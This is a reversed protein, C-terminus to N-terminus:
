AWGLYKMIIIETADKLPTDLGDLTLASRRNILVVLKRTLKNDVILPDFDPYKSQIVECITRLSDGHIEESEVKTIKKYPSVYHITPM